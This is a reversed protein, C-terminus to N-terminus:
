VVSKRDVDGSFMDDLTKKPLRKGNRDSDYTPGGVHCTACMTAQDWLSMDVKPYLNGAADQGGNLFIYLKTGPTNSDKVADGSNPTGPYSIGKGDAKLQLDAM